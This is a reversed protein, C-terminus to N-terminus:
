ASNHVWPRLETKKTPVPARLFWRIKGSGPLLKCLFSGTLRHLSTSSNCPGPFISYFFRSALPIQRLCSALYSDGALASYLTLSLVWLRSVAQGGGQVKLRHLALLIPTDISLCRSTSPKSTATHLNSQRSTALYTVAPCPSRHLTWNNMHTQDVSM